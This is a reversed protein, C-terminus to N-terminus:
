AINFLTFLQFIHESPSLNQNRASAYNPWCMVAVISLDGSMM